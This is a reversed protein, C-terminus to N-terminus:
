GKEFFDKEIQAAREMKGAQRLWAAYINVINSIDAHPDIKVVDLLRKFADEVESESGRMMALMMINGLLTIIEYPESWGLKAYIEIAQNNLQEAKCIELWLRAIM